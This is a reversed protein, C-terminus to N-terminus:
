KSRPLLLRVPPIGSDKAFLEETWTSLSMLLLSVPFRGFGRNLLVDSVVIQRCSFLKSPGKACIVAM